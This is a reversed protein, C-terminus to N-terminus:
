PTLAAIRRQIQSYDSQSWGEHGPAADRGACFCHSFDKMRLHAPIRKVARRAWLEFQNRLLRGRRKPAVAERRFIAKMEEASYGENFNRDRTM